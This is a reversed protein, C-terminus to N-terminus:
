VKEYDVAKSYEAVSQIFLKVKEHEPHVDYQALGEWSDFEAVLSLDMARETEVSNIGVEMRRLSPVKGMLADLVRKAEVINEKKSEDRFKFMVIHVLM